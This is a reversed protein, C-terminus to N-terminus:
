KVILKKVIKVDNSEVSIFYVSETLQKSLNLENHSKDTLVEQHILQGLLNTIKLQVTEANEFGNLNVELKGQKYPNPFISISKELSKSTENSAISLTNSIRQSSAPISNDLIQIADIRTTISATKTDYIRFWNLANMNPTGLQSANSINLSIQNWGNTLGSLTWSLENIDAAGGSGLEVKVSGCKTVDSVYYWFSLVGNAISTDSNFAPSFVKKFEETASGIMQVCGAGQKKDSTYYSISNSSSSNWSTIADCDDLYPVVKLEDINGGNSGNTTLKITNNGANLSQTTIVKGWTTWLGTPPFDLSSVKVIGNVKLELPRSGSPLAYRFSLDYSGATPVNVTWQVYDGTANVFDIFGTGNFGTQNSAIVAGSYAADEAQLIQIPNSTTAV